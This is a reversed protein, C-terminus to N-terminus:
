IQSVDFQKLIRAIDEAQLLDEPKDKDKAKLDVKEYGELESELQDIKSLLLSVEEKKMKEAKLQPYENNLYNKIKLFLRQKGIEIDMYWEFFALVIGIGASIIILISHMQSQGLGVTSAESIVMTIISIWLLRKGKRALNEISQTKFRGIKNEYFGDKIFSDLDMSSQDEYAKYKDVLSSIFRIQSEPKYAKPDLYIDISATIKNLNNNFMLIGLSTWLFIIINFAFLFIVM